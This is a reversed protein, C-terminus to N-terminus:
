SSFEPYKLKMEFCLENQNVVIEVGVWGGARWFILLFNINLENTQFDERQLDEGAATALAVEGVAELAADVQGLVRRLHWLQDVAHDPVPEDRLLRWLLPDRHSLPLSQKKVMEPPPSASFNM